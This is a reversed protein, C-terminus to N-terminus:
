SNRYIYLFFVTVRLTQSIKAKTSHCSIKFDFGKQLQLNHWSKLFRETFNSQHNPFNSLFTAHTPASDPGKLYSETMSFHTSDCRYQDALEISFAFSLYIELVTRTWPHKKTNPKPTSWLLRNKMLNTFYDPKLLALVVSQLWPQFHPSFPFASYYPILFIIM